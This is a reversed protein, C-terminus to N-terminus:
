ARAARAARDLAAGLGVKTLPKPLYDDMGAARCREADGAMANATLAIIRPRSGAPWRRCIHRTAELGDMEPMQMDMLVIDYTQRELASLVELGNAAVDARYGMSDLLKLAVRQNVVNDEAVLIRLPLRAALRQDGRDPAGARAPQGGPRGSGNLRREGVAPPAATAEARVTFHFTSGRGEVSEAWIAGGMMEVLRKSIALGLGTGSLTSPNYASNPGVRHPGGAAPM